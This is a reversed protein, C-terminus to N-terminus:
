RPGPASARHTRRSTPPRLVALCRYPSPIGALRGPLTRVPVDREVCLQRVPDLEGGADPALYVAAPDRRLLARLTEGCGARVRQEGDLGFSRAFAALYRVGREDGVPGEGPATPDGPFWASVADLFRATRDTGSLEAYFKAGHYAGPAILDARAVTRSVLGSVTANLCAHPVLLDERTGHLPTVHAPDALVAVTPDLARDTRLAHRVLDASVERLIGGSGTWGDVFALSAPDHAATLAELAARDLGRGRVVSIAYHPLVVGRVTRAWRRVLAGVPTGARALSVLVPAGDHRALLRDALLGVAAATAAATRELTREVLEAYDPSPPREEPLSDSYHIAGRGLAAERAATPTELPHQSVDSLLWGVEDPAFSGFEPGRRVPAGAADPHAARVPRPERCPAVAVLTRGAVTSLRALLGDADRLSATDAASDIILVVTDYFGAGPAGLNYVFREAAAGTATDHAAFGLGSRVPYGPLDRAVVPSRSTAGVRVDLGRAALAEGLRVPLYHLEECGLVLVRGPEPPLAECLATAASPVARDVLARGARDLGHRASEAADGLRLRVSTVDGHRRGGSPRAVADPGDALERAARELVAAPSTLTARTLAVVDICVGLERAVRPIETDDQDRLDALTAVVYRHRPLRHHLSRVTAAVTRGTSLEDDVLVLPRDPTWRGPDDPVLFHHPAHSHVEDFTALVAAGAVTRRTTHVVYDADLADAVLHCLGTANEAYGVVVPSSSASSSSDLRDRVRRALRDAVARVRDPEVPVLKGLVLSVPLHARRPNRRLALGVMACLPEAEQDPGVVLGLADRVGVGLWPEDGM